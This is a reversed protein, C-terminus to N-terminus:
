RYWRPEAADIEPATWHRGAGVWGARTRLAVVTGGDLTITVSAGVPVRAADVRQGTRVRNPVLM